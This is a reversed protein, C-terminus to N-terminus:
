PKPLKVYGSSELHMDLNKIRKGEGDVTWVHLFKGKYLESGDHLTDHIEGSFVLWPLFVCPRKIISCFPRIPAAVHKGRELRGRYYNEIETIGRIVGSYAVADASNGAGVEIMADQAFVSVIGALDSKDLAAYFRHCLEIADQSQDSM